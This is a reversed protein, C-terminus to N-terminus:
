GRLPRFPSKSPATDPAKVVSVQLKGIALQLTKPAEPLTSANYARHWIALLAKATSSGLERDLGAPLHHCRTALAQVAHIDALVIQKRFNPILPDSSWLSTPNEASEASHFLPNM